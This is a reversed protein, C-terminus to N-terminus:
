LHEVRLASSLREPCSSVNSKFLVSQSNVYMGRLVVRALKVERDKVGRLLIADDNLRAARTYMM